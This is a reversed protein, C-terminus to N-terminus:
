HKVTFKQSESAKGCTAKLIYMGTTLGGVELITTEGNIGQASILGNGNLDYVQFLVQRNEQPMTYQVELYRDAPIPAVNFVANEIKSDTQINTTNDALTKVETASLAYNYVRFDDIEGKLMPDSAFQSRGIYNLVPKFDSPRLTISTSTAAVEGNLYITVAEESMTVAVHTWKRRYNRFSGADLKQEEGGNKIAFRLVNTDCNPTLFMYEDEGNGFDFIRQWDDGARWYIWTAVTIEKHHPIETPLQVFDDDGDLSIATTGSYGEAYTASAPMVGNNSNVTSDRTNNEFEYRTVLTKEQPITANVSNSAVSTSMIADTTKIAYHYTKGGHVKNDVFVTDTINRAILEYGSEASESRLVSYVAPTNTVEVANWTLQVSAPRAKAEVNSPAEVTRWRLRKLGTPIFRWLESDDGTPMVQVVNTGSAKLCMNSHRSRIYFWNDGAYELYWQQNSKKENQYLIIKANENLSFDLIDLTQNGFTPLIQVYSFDGGIRSDVPNVNWQQSEKSSSYTSVILDSGSTDMFKKDSKNAIIYTGDIVPQIDEGWTINIVQEANTQGTQYGTGGPLEMVYERQPGHGNYFVDREKSLFRYSTTLGQRESTGGFAQVKGDPARYVSAATWNPRHEAYALREGHAAKCFEGRAYEAPGWWIGTQLGYELGVMAEMVNHMEDDTAHKGDKALTSYFKAFGDFGGALQHTNGEDLVGKLYTYWPLAEDCNLTNGGCIRINDFRPNKRLEESILKFGEMRLGSKGDQSGPVWQNWGYDPENFPAVSAIEYGADQFYRTTVDILEAWLPANTIYADDVSPHDCNIQLKVDPKCYKLLRLRNTIAEKQKQQLDGNVLPYTPQFSVRAVSTNDKGMFLICRRFNQEHAWALDAGWEVEHTIGKESLKFPVTRDATPQATLNGISNATQAFTSLSLNSFIFLTILQLHKSKM